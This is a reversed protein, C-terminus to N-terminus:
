TKALTETTSALARKFCDPQKVVRNRGLGVRNERLKERNEKRM